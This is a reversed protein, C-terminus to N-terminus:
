RTARSLGGSRVGDEPVAVTAPGSPKLRAPAAAVNRLVMARGAPCLGRTLMELYDVTLGSAKAAAIVIGIRDM